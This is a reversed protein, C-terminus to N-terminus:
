QIKRHIRYIIEMGLVDLLKLITALSPNAHGREIDKVTSLSIDSMEALDLQSIGLTKRRTKIVEQLNM